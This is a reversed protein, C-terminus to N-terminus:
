WLSTTLTCWASRMLLVLCCVRWWDRFHPLHTAWDLLHSLLSTYSMTLRMHQRRGDKGALVWIEFRSFYFVPYWLYPGNLRRHLTTLFCWLDSSQCIEVTEGDADRDTGRARRAQGRFNCHHTIIACEEMSCAGTNAPWYLCRTVIAVRKALRVCHSFRFENLIICSHM